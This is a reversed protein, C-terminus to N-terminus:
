DEQPQIQQQHQAPRRGEQSVPPRRDDQPCLALEREAAMKRYAAARELLRGALAGPAAKALRSLMQARAHLRTIESM